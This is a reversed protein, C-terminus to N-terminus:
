LRNRLRGMSDRYCAAIADGDRHAGAQAVRRGGVYVAAIEAAGGATVLADLAPDGELGGLVRSGPDLVVIDAFAGPALRGVPLGLAGGGADAVTSWLPRGLGADTALCARREHKLRQGYELLRLEEVADIRVNSDSGIAIAGGGRRFTVADFLGDGLYAETIPCMIVRAGSRGVLGIEDATAHTAHVLNWHRDLAVHESLLRIPSHGYRDLCDSVECRQEAVHIHRPFGSGLISGAASELEAIVDPAVARVSHPAIGVPLGRLSALLGLYDEIGRHVFRQQRPEPPKGFGGSQYFVPLLVLRIGARRAGEAVAMAMEAGATGDPLHHLYHFEAVSTFGAVLMDAFARAAVDAMEGPTIAAALGYMAERWSWFSDAGAAAEGTGVMARQFCHSHANPMGPLALWGDFHPGPEDEVHVIIGQSDIEIRKQYELGEPTLIHEFRLVASKAVGAVSRVLATCSTMNSFALNYGM